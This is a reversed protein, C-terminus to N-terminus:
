KSSNNKIKVDLLDNIQDLTLKKAVIRKDKDLLYITPTVIVDYLQRFSPRNFKADEDISEKSQYVNVWDGIHHTNLFTLWEAKQKESESLVAYIKMGKKQWGARYFSDIRPIEEKCHGCNPDWFVVLTYDAKVDYLSRVKGATDVFDLNAANEGVLNSMLMFARRTVISDQYKSLWKSVGKSHYQNYLHVFIADQGMYKPNIYEDTLWNLLFKYMEPANRALLMKYDIDKIVSDTPLGRMVDRYYNELRPLFFPTRIIRDEMFTIGDWYHAKYYYFNNLTDQRTVPMKTPYPPERMANLLVALMSTSKNKIINERYENLIASEKKYAAEHKLSDAKTKSENFAKKEAQLIKGKIGVFAQYDKFLVNAPSGTIIIKDLKTTDAVISINQEKDILFDASLRKGPFIISYIGAPVKNPSKFIAKGTNSVAASDQVMFDKGLYYTLYAIGSKYNSQLTIQYGQAHAGAFAAMLLLSLFIKKMKICYIKHAFTNLFATLYTSSQDYFIAKKFSLIEAFKISVL